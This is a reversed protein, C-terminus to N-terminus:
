TWSPHPWLGTQGPYDSVGSALSLIGIAVGFVEVTLGDAFM